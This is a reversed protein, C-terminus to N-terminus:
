VALSVRFDYALNSGIDFSQYSQKNIARLVRTEESDWTVRGRDDAYIYYLTVLLLSLPPSLSLPHFLPQYM